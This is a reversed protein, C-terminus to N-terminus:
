PLEINYDYKGSNKVAFNERVQEELSFEELKQKDKLIQKKPKGVFFSFLSPLAYLHTYLEDMELLFKVVNRAEPLEPDFLSYNNHMISYAIAGNLDLHEETTFYRNFCTMILESHIAETPDTHLMTELHPHYLDKKAFGLPLLNNVENIIKFHKKGYQNRHPGIYDFNLFYGNPKLAKAIVRHMRDIYQVHHMAAVNVVLDFSDEPFEVKNCDAQLYEFPRGEAAKRAATLLEESYDFAVASEFVGLDFLEREVWGNGCNLILAKSFKKDKVYNHLFHKPWWNPETNKGNLIIRSFYEHTLDHDNWYRDKYYVAETKPVQSM